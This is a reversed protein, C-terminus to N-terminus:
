ALALAGRSVARRAALRRLWAGREAMDGLSRLCLGTALKKPPRNMKRTASVRIKPPLVTTSSWIGSVGSFTSKENVDVMPAIGAPTAWSMGPGWARRAWVAGSPMALDAVTSAAFTDSAPLFSVACFCVSDFREVSKATRAPSGGLLVWGLSM